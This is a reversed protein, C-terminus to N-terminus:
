WRIADNTLIDTVGSACWEYRFIYSKKQEIKKSISFRYRSKIASFYIIKLWLIQYIFTYNIKCIFHKM